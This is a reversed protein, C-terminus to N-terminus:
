LVNLEVEPLHPMEPVLLSASGTVGVSGISGNGVDSSINFEFKGFGYFYLLFLNNYQNKLIPQLEQAWLHIM